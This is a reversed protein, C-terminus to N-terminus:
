RHGPMGEAYKDTLLNGMALQVALSCYNESAILKVRKRQNELEKVISAAIEPSVKATEQLNCLYALLGTDINDPGVSALYSAVPNKNM